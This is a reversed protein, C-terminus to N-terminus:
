PKNLYREPVILTKFRNILVMLPLCAKSIFSLSAQYLIFPIKFFPNNNHMTHISANPITAHPDLLLLDDLFDLEVVIEELLLVPFDELLLVSLEEPLLLAPESLLLAPFDERLLEFLEDFLFYWFCTRSSCLFNRWYSSQRLM